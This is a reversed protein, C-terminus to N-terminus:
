SVGDRKGPHFAAIACTRDTLLPKTKSGSRPAQHRQVLEVIKEVSRRDHHQKTREMWRRLALRKSVEVSRIDLAKCGALAISCAAATAAFVHRKM